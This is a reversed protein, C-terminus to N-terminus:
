VFFSLSLLRGKERVLDYNVIDCNHMAVNAVLKRWRQNCKNSISNSVSKFAGSLQLMKKRLLPQLKIKNM